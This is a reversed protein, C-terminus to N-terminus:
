TDQKTDKLHVFLECSAVHCSLFAGPTRLHPDVRASHAHSTCLICMTYVKTVITARMKHKTETWMAMGIAGMRCSGTGVLACPFHNTVHSRCRM